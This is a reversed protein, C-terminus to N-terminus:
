RGSDKERREDISPSRTWLRRPSKRPQKGLLAREPLPEAIRRKEKEVGVGEAGKPAERLNHAMTSAADKTLLLPM